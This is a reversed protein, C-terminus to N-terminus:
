AAREATIGLAREVAAVGLPTLRYGNGWITEIVDFGLVKRIRHMYVDVVKWDVREEVRVPPVLEELREKSILRGRADYLRLLMAAPAPFLRTAKRIAAVREIEVSAREENRYHDNEDRLRDREDCVRQYEAMTVFGTM